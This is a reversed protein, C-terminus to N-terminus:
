IEENKRPTRYPPEVMKWILDSYPRGDLMRFLVPSCRYELALAAFDRRELSHMGAFLEAARSEISTYDKRLGDEVERVWDYVEDPLGPSLGRRLANWVSRTSVSFIASHLALYDEFKIKFRYGDEFRVVFGERNRINLARIGDFDDGLDFGRAFPFPGPPTPFERGSETHITALLVLEERVGYDVCVRNEPYVIEFLYTLEPDLDASSYKGRLMETARIAQESTFSGRTAIHPDGGAWYLIGLSGDVKDFTQFGQGRRADVEDRVEDLNFFKRFCRARIGNDSDVVLGRCSMTTENWFGEYQTRPTYNLIWLDHLPHRRRSIYGAEVLADLDELV